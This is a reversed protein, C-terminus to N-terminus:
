LSCFNDRFGSFAGQLARPSGIGFLKRLIAGLNRAAVLILYRKSVDELGRLWTRRGGGAGCTHAFSREVLESRLRGLKKGHGSRVRRRNAYTAEKYGEPKDTWNRAEKREIEPIYTRTGMTQLDRLTESKNYGKDGAVEEISVESGAEILNRQADVVRETITETDATDAHYVAASVVMDSNLDVAHEAKYAMHTRGDKMKAVRADPDTKSEWDKNSVKKDKRGKDFKRLDDDSPDEIGAEEALRRLYEKYAEGSDKRVISKMAANAELTTSDVGIAKGKILGKEVAVSIVFTFVEEHVELPLRKRVNTLSSHDPSKKDVAIGLFSRISLSDGCRWAIGRQSGIGEFYGVFLMRFYIGPPIGPRGVGKSYYDECLGEVWSDFEAESLLENLKKYFPHGPSKPLDITSIWLQQQVAKRKGLAM